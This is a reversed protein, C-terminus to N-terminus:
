RTLYAVRKQGAKKKITHYTLNHDSFYLIQYVNVLVENEGM